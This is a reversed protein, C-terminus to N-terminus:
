VLAVNAAPLSRTCVSGPRMATHAGIEVDPLIVLRASIWVGDHITIPRAFEVGTARVPADIPHGATSLVVNPGILVDNGIRVPACDLIVLNHNAYLNSGVSINYGYDCFFPPELYADSRYGLLEQLLAAGDGPDGNNYQRCLSKARKREHVLEEDAAVYWEGALMKEKETRM